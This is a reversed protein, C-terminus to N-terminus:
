TAFITFQDTRISVEFYNPALINPTFHDAAVYEPDTIKICLYNVRDLMQNMIIQLEKIQKVDKKAIETFM